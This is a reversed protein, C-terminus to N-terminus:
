YNHWSKLLGILSLHVLDAEIFNVRVGGIDDHVQTFGLSINHFLIM